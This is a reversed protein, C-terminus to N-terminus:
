KVEQSRQWSYVDDTRGMKPYDEIKWEGDAGAGWAIATARVDAPAGEAAQVIGDGDLDVAFYILHEKVTKGSPVASELTANKNRKLVAAGWPDLVGFKDVGRLRTVTGDSGKVCNIGMLGHKGFVRAVSEGVVNYGNNKNANIIGRPWASEKVYLIGLATAVNSVTEQAQARRAKKTVASYGGITAGTLIALIGIVILMEILTFGKKM